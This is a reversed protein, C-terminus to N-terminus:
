TPTVTEQSTVGILEDIEGGSGTTRAFYWDNSSSGKLIDAVGDDEVLPALYGVLSAVRDAYSASALWQDSISLLAARREEAPADGLFVGGILIDDGSNGTLEDAGLGGILIDRASGGTLKDNGAGGDLVASVNGSVGLVDNGDDGELL